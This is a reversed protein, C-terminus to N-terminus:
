GPASLLAKFRRADRAMAGNNFMVMVTGEGPLKRKLAALDVESYRYHYHYAPRGHLRFYHWDRSLPSALFPDVGHVLGLEDLLPALITVTWDGGRPEFVIKWDGRPVATFFRRMRELNEATPRFSAPTQCVVAVARLLDALHATADWARWTLDNLRFGGCLAKEADDLPRKLRRYTPSSPPHTILQWAKLSFAFDEPAEKRWRRVTEPGPPHYFTQQVEVADLDRYLRRRAEPFGCTGVRIRGTGDPVATFTAGTACGTAM